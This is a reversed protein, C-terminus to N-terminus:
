SSIKNKFPNKIFEVEYVIKNTRIQSLINEDNIRQKVRFKVTKIQNERYGVPTQLLTNLENRKTDLLKTYEINQDEENKTEEVKQRLMQVEQMLKQGLEKLEKNKQQIKPSAIKATFIKGILVSKEFGTYLKEDIVVVNQM